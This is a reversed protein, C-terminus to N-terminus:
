RPKGFVQTYWLVGKSDPIIGLGIETFKKHLINDRHAPSEMWAKVVRTVPINDGFAINEGAFYYQYGTAKIRQFPTKGDLVHEMKGQKAMNASHARAAKFLFPNPKLPPLEKKTREQNTLDLLKKEAATMRFATKDPSGATVALGTMAALLM